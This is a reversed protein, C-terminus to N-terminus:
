TNEIYVLKLNLLEQIAFKRRCYNELTLNFFNQHKGFIKEFQEDNLEFVETYMLGVVDEDGYFETYYFTDPLKSGGDKYSSFCGTDEEMVINKIILELDYLYNMLKKTNM